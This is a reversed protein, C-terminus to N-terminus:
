CIKGHHIAYPYNMKRRIYALYRCYNLSSSGSLGLGPPPAPPMGGNYKEKTTAYRCNTKRSISALYRCYKLSSSGRLGLGPPSAPPMGSAFKEMTPSMVITLKGESTPLINAISRAPPGASDWGQHCPLRCVALLNETTPPM